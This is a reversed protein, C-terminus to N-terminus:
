GLFHHAVRVIQIGTLNLFRENCRMLYELKQAGIRIVKIQPWVDFQLVLDDPHSGAHVVPLHTSVHHADDATTREEEQQQRRLHLCQNYMTILSDRERERGSEQM